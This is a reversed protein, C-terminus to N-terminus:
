ATGTGALVLCLLGLRLRQFMPQRQQLLLMCVRRDDCVKHRKAFARKGTGMTSNRASGAIKRGRHLAAGCTSGRTLVRARPEIRRVSYSVGVTNATGLLQEHVWSLVVLGVASGPVLCGPLVFTFHLGVDGKEASAALTEQSRLQPEQVVQACPALAGNVQLTGTPAIRQRQPVLTGLFDDTHVDALTHNGTGMTFRCRQSGRRLPVTTIHEVGWACEIASGVQDVGTTASQAPDYINGGPCADHSAQEFGAATSQVDKLAM